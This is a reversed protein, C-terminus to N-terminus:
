GAERHRVNLEHELDPLPGVEASVGVQALAALVARLTRAYDRAQGVEWNSLPEGGQLRQLMGRANNTATRYGVEYGAMRRAEVLADIQEDPVGHWRLISIAVLTHPDIDSTGYSRTKEEYSALRVEFSEQLREARVKTPDFTSTDSDILATADELTAWSITTADHYIARGDPARTVGSTGGPTMMGFVASGPSDFEVLVLPHGLKKANRRASPAWLQCGLRYLGSFMSGDLALVRGGYEFVYKEPPREQAFHVQAARKPYEARAYGQHFLANLNTHRDSFAAGIETLHERVSSARVGQPHRQGMLPRVSKSKAPLYQQHELSVEACLIDWPLYLGLDEQTYAQIIGVLEPPFQSMYAPVCLIWNSDANIIYLCDHDPILFAEGLM